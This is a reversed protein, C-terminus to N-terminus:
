ERSEFRLMCTQGRPRSSIIQDSVSMDGNMDTAIHTRFRLYVEKLLIRMEAMALSTEILWAIEVVLQLANLLFFFSVTEGYM